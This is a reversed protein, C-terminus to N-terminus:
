KSLSIFVWSAISPSLAKKSFRFGVQFSLQGLFPPRGPRGAGDKSIRVGEDMVFLNVIM